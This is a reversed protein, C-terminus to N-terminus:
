RTSLKSSKAPVNDHNSVVHSMQRRIQIAEKNQRFILQSTYSNNLEGYNSSNM